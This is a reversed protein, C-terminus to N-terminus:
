TYTITCLTCTGLKLSMVSYNWNGFFDVVQKKFCERIIRGGGSICVCLYVYMYVGCM